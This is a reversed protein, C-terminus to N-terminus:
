GIAKSFETFNKYHVVKGQRIEKMAKILKRAYSAKFESKLSAAKGGELLQVLEYVLSNLNDIKKDLREVKKQIQVENM